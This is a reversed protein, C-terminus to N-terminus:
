CEGLEHHLLVVPEGDATLKYETDMSYDTGDLLILIGFAAVHAARTPPKTKKAEAVIERVRALFLEGQKNAM